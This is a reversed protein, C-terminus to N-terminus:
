RLWNLSDEDKLRLSISLGISANQASPKPESPQIIVALDDSIDFTKLTGGVYADFINILYWIASGIMCMTFDRKRGDMYNTSNSSEPIVEHKALLERKTSTYEKYNYIAGWMLLGFVGYIIPLRWYNQNYAQGLGPIIASYLWARQTYMPADELLKKRPHVKKLQRKQRNKNILPRTRKPARKTSGISAPRTGLTPEFNLGQYQYSKYSDTNIQLTNLAFTDGLSATLLAICLFVKPKFM